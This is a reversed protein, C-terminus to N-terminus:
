LESDLIRVTMMSWFLFGVELRHAWFKLVTEMSCVPLAQLHAQAVFLLKQRWIVKSTIYLHGTEAPHAAGEGGLRTRMRLDSILAKEERKGQRTQDSVHCRLFLVSSLSPM